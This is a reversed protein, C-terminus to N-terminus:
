EEVRMGKVTWQGTSELVTRWLESKPDMKRRKATVLELPVHVFEDMIRSVVIGTRGAMAAHVAHQGLQGCYAADSTNAHVSRIIYSPDIYKITLDQNREAFFKKLREKLFTGIDSLVINGSPDYKGTGQMLHQGAGEAAVIVAHGRARIRKFVAELLGQPGDIEFPLEPVLVFNVDRMSLTAQAAIFGSERGMLKVLGITNHCGMAEAHACEIAETAKEVATDFGFSKPVYNIDNDITKPIGIVSIHLGRKAIENKIAIAAKMSGDGGIFYLIDIREKLPRDVVREIPQSGRSTGLITGGFHHINSIDYSRLVLPTFGKEEIFGALGYRFGLIDDAGYAYHSELIISRIVDNLGPCLGGCTVIASRTRKPDFFLREHPGAAEFLCDTHGGIDRAFDTPLHLLVTHSSPFVGSALNSDFRAQGLIETNIKFIKEATM